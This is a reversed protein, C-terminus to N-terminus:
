TPSTAKTAGIEALSSSRMSLVASPCDFYERPPYGLDNESLLKMTIRERFGASKRVKALADQPVNATKM